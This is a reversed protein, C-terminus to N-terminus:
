IAAWNAGTARRRPAHACRGCCRCTAFLWSDNWGQAVGAATASGGCARSAYAFRVLAPARRVLLIGALLMVAAAILYTAVPSHRPTDPVLLLILASQLDFLAWPISMLAFIRVAVGFVESAKM